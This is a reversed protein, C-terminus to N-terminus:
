SFIQRYLREYRDVSACFSFRTVAEHAAAAALRSAGTPDTLLRTIAAALADIDGPPVLVGTVAHTIVDRCGPVDTTVIPRAAAMAELLANPLGETRSPFAFVDAIKLLAAVDDRRGLLKVRDQLRHGEVRRRVTPEYDGDGVLLLRVEATRTVIAFADVLEDLGKVADLRGVWLVVRTAEPLALAARDAPRANQIGQVDVGGRICVLRGATVHAARRLHEVVSPSNGVVCAGLRHLMGEVTLHWRREIEVTQIECILRSISRGALPVALRSAVNAHFLFSHVLDPRLRRLHQGLRWIAPLDRANRAACDVTDIGADRLRRTVPGPPALSVVSPRHGRQLMATSLRLLHLPVGGTNLDTIVYTIRYPGM